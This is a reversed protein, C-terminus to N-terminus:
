KEREAKHEEIVKQAVESPVQQYSAFEAHFTGRGHTMSHLQTSYKYMEAEPVMAKVKMLRGDQESGLIQGRRASLDGMIDGLNEDPTWVDIQHVPEMLVPKCNAAVNKFASVGAMKFSMENSDVDHYSGDYCEVKFDVVPYGALVGRAAAEQVGKDVAPIFKSPIAGGVIKSEFAYGAGEPQPLIRIRCDGFQGRGGSQKKHKGQGEAKGRFTEKYPSRPKSLEAHVSFKRQLRSVIIELHREGRGRILTQALVSDYEYHFTPDEEHLKVLGQSLKDQESREKVDIRLTILPEPFPISELTIPKNPSALFNNTHTNHLKAVAGIDGAHLENIEFKEKGQAVSLHNLKETSRTVANVVESGNTVMGSRVRFLSVEGVHAESVTKFIHAVFPGKDDASVEVEEDNSFLKGILPPRETPAPVLEVLKSLLARTGYTLVGSGCLLPFLEGKEMGHKMAEIAEERSIEDGNLYRELLDDDTSAISEILEESYKKFRAMYEDPIETEEYDGSKTGKKYMHCKKSFLNIIGHFDPGEGVPIEIPVVKDTMHEKIDKFVSEFDAHDKDMLSVFFMRPIGRETAYEWMRETGVEVGSTGSLVLLAADATHVGAIADGVFDLYGPCDILNIKTKLWEAHALSLNISYQREIEEHAYDTLSTGDDVSGHRKSSGSVFALADVLSTKGSSGHGVVAVNRIRDGTYVQLIWRRHPTSKVHDRM